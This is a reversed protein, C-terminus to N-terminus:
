SRRALPETKCVPCKNKYALWQKICQIHFGHGCELKGVEDDGEYEEQCVSCKKELIVKINHSSLENLVSLKFKRICHAIEDEKLGTSVHGIKDGLELLQEYSMDDIDLRWASFRDMRGGMVFGNQLMLVEALGDPPARRYYRTTGFLEPEPRVTAFAAPEADWFSFAEPDAPAARRSRERERSNIFKEVDIRGRASPLNRRTVVCDVSDVVADGSFGIGPGCWVDQIVMCNGQSNLGDSSSREESVGQQESMKRRQQAKKKMKKKVKKGDWEASSRIVAPVSVQRAAGAACGLGRFAATGKKKVGVSTNNNAITVSPPETSNASFPSIFLSSITTSKAPRSLQPNPDTEAAAAPDLQHRHLYHSNFHNRSSRRLRIQDGITSSEPFVPM